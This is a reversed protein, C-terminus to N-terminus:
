PTLDRVRHVGDEDGRPPERLQRGSYSDLALLVGEAEAGGRNRRRGMGAWDVPGRGGQLGAPFRNQCVSPPSAPATPDSVITLNPNRHPFAYWTGMKGSESRPFMPIGDCTFEAFPQFGAPEHPHGNGGQRAIAGPRPSAKPDGVTDARVSAHDVATVPRREATATPSRRSAGVCESQPHIITLVAILGAGRLAAIPHQRM